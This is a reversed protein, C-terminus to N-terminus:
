FSARGYIMSHRFEAWRNRHNVYSSYPSRVKKCIVAEKLHIKQASVRKFLDDSLCDTLSDEDDEDVSGFITERVTRLDEEATNMKTMPNSNRKQDQPQKKKDTSVIDIKLDMEESPLTSSTTGENTALQRAEEESITLNTRNQGRILVEKLRNRNERNVDDMRNMENYEQHRRQKAANQATLINNRRTPAVYRMIPNANSRNEKYDSNWHRQQNQTSVQPPCRPLGRRRSSIDRIILGNVGGEIFMSKALGIQSLSKISRLNKSVVSM